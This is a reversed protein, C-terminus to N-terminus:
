AAKRELRRSDQYIDVIRLGQEAAVSEAILWAASDDPAVFDYASEEQTPCDSSSPTIFFASYSLMQLTKEANM